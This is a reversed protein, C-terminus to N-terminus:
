KPEVCAAMLLYGKGKGAAALDTYFALFANNKTTLIAKGAMSRTTNTKDSPDTVTIDFGDRSTNQSTNCNLGAWEQHNNVSDFLAVVCQEPNRPRIRISTITDPPMAEPFTAKVLGSYDGTDTENVPKGAPWTTRCDLNISPNKEKVKAVGTSAFSADCKCAFTAAGAPSVAAAYVAAVM